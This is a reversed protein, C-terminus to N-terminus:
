LISNRQSPVPCQIRHDTQARPCFVALKKAKNAAETELLKAQLAENKKQAERLALEDKLQQAECCVNYILMPGWQQDRIFQLSVTTFTILPSPSVKAAAAALRDEEPSNPLRSMPGAEAQAKKMATRKMDRWKDYDGGNGDRGM